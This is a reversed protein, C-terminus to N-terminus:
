TSPPRESAGRGMQWLGNHTRPLVQKEMLREQSQHIASLSGGRLARQSRQVAEGECCPSPLCGGDQGWLHAQLTGQKAEGQVQTEGM